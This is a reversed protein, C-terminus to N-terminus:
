FPGYRLNFHQKVIGKRFFIIGCNFLDISISVNENLCINNWAKEMGKSWRIDDFIILSDSCAKASFLEFYRMTAEESHNGDIFVLGLKEIHALIDLLNTDFEGNILTVNTLGLKNFNASALKALEGDGEISVMKANKNGSALYMASFGASTGLEIISEPKLYNSLRFLLQGTYPPISSRKVVRGITPEFPDIEKSGVGFNNRSILSTNKLLEKRLAEIREFIAENPKKDICNTYLDYVFPSHIGHGGRPKSKLRFYFYKKLLNINELLM